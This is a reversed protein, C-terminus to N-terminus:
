GPTKILHLIGFQGRTAPLLGEEARTKQTRTAM